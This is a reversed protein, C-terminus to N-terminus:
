ALTETDAADDHRCRKILASPAKKTGSAGTPM